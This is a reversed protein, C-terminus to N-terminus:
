NLNSDSLKYVTQQTLNAVIEWKQTLSPVGMLEKLKGNQM